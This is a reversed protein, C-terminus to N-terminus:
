SGLDKECQIQNKKRLPWLSSLLTAAVPHWPVFRFESLVWGSNCDKRLSPGFNADKQRESRGKRAQTRGRFIKRSSRHSINEWPGGSEGCVFDAHSENFPITYQEQTLTSM